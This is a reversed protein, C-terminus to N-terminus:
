WRTFESMSALGAGAGRVVRLGRAVDVELDAGLGVEVVSGKDLGLDVVRTDKREAVRLGEARADLGRKTEREVRELEGRARGIGASM